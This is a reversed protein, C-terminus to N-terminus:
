KNGLKVSDIDIDPYIQKICDPCLGHSFEADSRQRIYAEIQNWIGKDDRIKKCKSCIPLLGSLTQLKGQSERLQQETQLRAIVGGIALGNGLGKAFTLMDPVIDHAQYGWFHEGTRGWGTQVEDAIFLIQHESLIKGMAGFMDDPPAAFGGVGQVPEAIFAAITEPDEREILAELNAAM